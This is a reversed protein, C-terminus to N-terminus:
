SSAKKRFADFPVGEDTLSWSFFEICNLRLGHVVGGVIGLVLNLSHGVLFILTGLLLGVGRVESAQSALDNFTIALQASALGLAFLRLYSLADGFAKSLNTLALLGDLPRWLWDSLKASFLPRESAFLFVCLLGVSLGLTGGRWLAEGLREISLPTSDALLQESLWPVLPPAPLRAIAMVLSSVLAIAWGVHSIARGTGRRQWAVILNAITLHAVGIGAALLMMADRDEMISKGGTKWVLRDLWSNASPSIGFYSGIVIGYGITLAVMFGALSRFRRSDETKGLRRYLVL